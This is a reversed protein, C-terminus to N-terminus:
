IVIEESDASDPGSHVHISHDARDAHDAKATEPESDCTQPPGNASWLSAAQGGDTRLSDGSRTSDPGDASPASRASRQTAWKDLEIIARKQKGQKQNFVVNIYIARLNPAIRRLKGGLGRASAPWTKQKKIKEDAVAELEVLLEGATGAWRDRDAMFQLLTLGIPSSEIAMDHAAERNQDYADMFAGSPWGLGSEAATAWVAFDAMRPLRELQVSAQNRLAASVGNLLAGLIRPRAKEFQRTLEGEERRDQEHIQPLILNIDRDLFDSRHALDEIGNVIIPRAASFLKEEDDSYLQRTAFGSGTALASLVDSLWTPIGSLNDFAVIWGNSATIMIDRDDKPPRRLPAKNPDIL